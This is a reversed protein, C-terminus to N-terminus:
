MEDLFADLKATDFSQNQQCESRRTIRVSFDRPDYEMQIADIEEMLRAFDRDATSPIGSGARLEWPAVADLRAAAVARAAYSRGWPSEDTLEREDFHVWNDLDTRRMLESWDMLDM